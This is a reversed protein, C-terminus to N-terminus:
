RGYHKPFCFRARAARRVDVEIAKGTARVLAYPDAGAFSYRGFEGVALASDLLWPFSGSRLREFLEILDSDPSLERSASAVAGSSHFM